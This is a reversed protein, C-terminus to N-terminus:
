SPCLVESVVTDITAVQGSAWEAAFTHDDLHTRALDIWQQYVVRDAPALFPVEQDFQKYAASLRRVAVGWWQQAVAVGGLGALGRAMMKEHSCGQALRLSERLCEQARGVEGLSLEVLGLHHWNLLLFMTDGGLNQILDLAQEGYTHAQRYDQCHWSNEVLAILAGTTGWKHDLQRYLALSEQYLVAAERYQGQLDLFEALAGLANAVGLQDGLSRMLALSERAYGAAQAFDAKVVSTLHALDTLAQAVRQRNGLQRFLALSEEFCLLSHSTDLNYHAWGLHRLAQALSDLDDQTRWFAVSEELWDRAQAQAGNLRALSGAFMLAKARLPSMEPAATLAAPLWQYGETIARQRWFPGLAAALALATTSEQQIMASLAARFNDIEGELRDFWLKQQPGHLEAEACEALRLYYQAHRRQAGALEGRATLEELAYQRLLEHMEYRDAPRRYEILSKDAFLTVHKLTADAVEEAAVRTFGGRFVSLHTLRQREEEVLLHWTTAFAARMSRHRAPVDHMTTALLDLNSQLAEVIASTPLLHVWGAALELALPMGATLQCIRVLDRQEGEDPQFHPHTRRAIRLFLAMAPATVDSVTAPCALGSIPYVQEDRLHLRERSTVLLHLAPAATLLEVLLLRGELVQEFNDFILLLQKDILFDLVQQKRAELSSKNNEASLKLANALAPVIAQADDIAALPVVYAGGRFRNAALHREAVALALRTKGVGGPGTITILRESHDFMLQDLEALESSRGVLPTLPHSLNHMVARPSSLAVLPDQVTQVTIDQGRAQPSSLRTPGKDFAGARIAAAVAVTEEDPEVALEEALLHRCTEFQALAAARQGSRALLTILQRHAEERWPELALLRRTHVIAGALDGQQEAYAALAYLGHVVSERYHARQVLLWQEFDPADRVYFGELFDGRYLALAAQFPQSTESTPPTSVGRTFHEIDLQYPHDRNFTVTQRQILVADGVLDRLNSLCKSLSTRAAADPQDGWFLGALAPRTHPRATVALYYLLAQAKNSRFGTVLQDNLRVEPSGFLTLHLINPM